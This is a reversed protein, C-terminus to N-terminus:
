RFTDPSIAGSSLTRLWWECAPGRKDRFEQRQRQAHEAGAPLLLYQLFFLAGRAMAYPLAAREDETLVRDTGSDYADVLRRVEALPYGSQLLYGLPLALDDVRPRVGAFDFDLVAMLQEGRFLVNNDWYDGHVLQTPLAHVPLLDALQEAIQCYREDDSSPDRERIYATAAATADVAREQPLHNALPPPCGVTLDAMQTHLEGLAIMGLRLQESSAMPSGSVYQEVELVCDGFQYWTSGDVAPVLGPVPIGRGALVTRIRQCDALRESSVWPGYVRLVHHDILLNLNFSGGLDVATEVGLDYRHAVFDLLEPSSAPDPAAIKLPDGYFVSGGRQPGVLDM